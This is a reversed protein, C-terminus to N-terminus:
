FYTQAPIFKLPKKNKPKNQKTKPKKKTQKSTQKNTQKNNTQKNTQKNTKTPNKKSSNIPFPSVLDSNQLQMSFKLIILRSM